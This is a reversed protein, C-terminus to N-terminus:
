LPDIQYVGQGSAVALWSLLSEMDLPKGSAKNDLKQEALFVLPHVSGANVEALNAKDSDDLIGAAHLEEVLTRLDLKREMRQEGFTAVM